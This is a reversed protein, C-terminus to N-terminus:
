PVVEVIQTADLYGNNDSDYYKIIVAHGSLAASDYNALLRAAAQSSEGGLGYVMLVYRPGDQYLQIVGYEATEHGGGDREIRYQHGNNQVYLYDGQGDRQFLVPLVRNGSVTLENYYYAVQNVGPSAFVVLDSTTDSMTVRATGFDYTSIYSYSDMAATVTGGAAGIANAVIVGGMTDMTHASGCPGHGESVPLIIRTNGFRFPVPFDSLDYSIVGLPTMLPYNDQNNNNIVYPTDGIGDNNSDTGSYDSWYNGGSPYGNDWANPSDDAAGFQNGNSVIGNHYVLNGSAGNYFWIGCARNAIVTNTTINNGSGGIGIGNLNNSIKNSVITFGSGDNIDIGNNGNNQITNSAILCNSAQYSGVGIGSNGTITNGAVINDTAFSFFVGNAYHGGYGNSTITNNQILFLSCNWFDVGFESNSTINNASININASPNENQPGGSVGSGANGNIANQMVLSNTVGFLSVGNAYFTGTVGNFQITNTQITVNSAQNINVGDNINGEIHNLSIFSSSINYAGIGQGWNYSFTNNVISFNSMSNVFIGGAWHQDDGNSTVTNNTVLAGYTAYFNIGTGNNSAITNDKVLPNNCNGISLGSNRNNVVTNDIVRLNDASDTSGGEWWNLAILNGVVTNNMSEQYMAFGNGQNSVLNNNLVNNCNAFDLHVGDGANNEINNNTVNNHSASWLQVGFSGSGTVSNAHVNNNSSNGLYIGVFGSDHIENNSIVNGSSMYSSIGSEINNIITNNNIIVNASSDLTIGFFSHQIINGTINVGSVAAIYIAAGINNQGTGSNQKTFGSINVDPANITIVNGSNGGDIVTTAVDTGILNVSKSITPHENYFGQGVSITHGPLTEPADLAAQITPYYIDTNLNCINSASLWVVAYQQQGFTGGTMYIADGSAAMSNIAVFGDPISSSFDQVQPTSDPNFVAFFPTCSSAYNNSPIIGVNPKVGALIFCEHAFAVSSVAADFGSFLGSYDATNGTSTSYTFAQIANNQSNSGAVFLTGSDYAMPAAAWSPGDFSFHAPLKAILDIFQTNSLLGFHPGSTTTLLIFVGDPTDLLAGNAIHNYSPLLSTVNTLVNTSPNYAWLMVNESAGVNDEGLIIYQTGNWAAQILVSNSNYLSSPFLPTLNTLSNTLPSYTYMLVGNHPSFYQGVVLFDTGDSSVGNLFGHTEGFPAEFSTGGFCLLGDGGVTVAYNSSICTTSAWSDPQLNGLPNLPITTGQLTTTDIAFLANNTGLYVKGLLEDAMSFIQTSPLTSTQNSWNNLVSDSVFFQNQWTYNSAVIQNDVSTQNYNFNAGILAIGSSVNFLYMVVAGEPVADTVNAIFGNVPNYSNLFGGISYQQYTYYTDNQNNLSYYEGGGLYFLGDFYTIDRIVAFVNAPSTYSTSLQSFQMSSLDLVGYYPCASTESVIAGGFVVKNDHGECSGISAGQALDVIAILDFTEANLVYLKPGNGSSTLFVYGDYSGLLNNYTVMPSLTVNAWGSPSYTTLYNGTNTSISLLFTQGAWVINQGNQSPTATYNIVGNSPNYMGLIIGNMQSNTSSVYTSCVVVGNGSAMNFPQINLTRQSNLSETLNNFATTLHSLQSDPDAAPSSMQPPNAGVLNMCPAVFSSLMLVVLLISVKSLKLKITHRM